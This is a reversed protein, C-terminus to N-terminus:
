LILNKFRALHQRLHSSDTKDYAPQLLNAWPNTTLIPGQDTKIMVKAVGERAVWEKLAVAGYPTEIQTDVRCSLQDLHNSFQMLSNDDVPHELYISIDIDSEKRACRIGSVLEYGLSGTVGWEISFHECIAEVESLCQMPPLESNQWYYKAQPSQVIQRPSICKKIKSRHAWAALRESRQTGRVGVPVLIRHPARRVVVPLTPKHSHYWKPASDGELTLEEVWLLDHACYPM